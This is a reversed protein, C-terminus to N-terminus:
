KKLTYMVKILSIKCLHTEFYIYLGNNTDSQGQM